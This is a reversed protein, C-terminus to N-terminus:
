VFLGRVAAAGLDMLFAVLFHLVACIWFSGTRLALVGLMWAAAISGLAEPVPKGAHMIAFPLVGVLAAASGLKERLPFILLGRFFFEWGVFYLLYGAELLVFWGAFGGGPLPPMRKAFMPYYQLFNKEGALLLVAVAAAMVAFFVGGIKLALRWDGLALGFDAARVGPWALIAAAPIVFLLLFASFFWGGYRAFRQIRQPAQALVAREQQLEKRLRAQEAAAIGPRRLRADLKRVKTKTSVAAQRSVAAPIGFGKHKLFAEKSGWIYLLFLLSILLYYVILRGEGPQRFPEIFPTVLQKWVPIRDKDSDQM